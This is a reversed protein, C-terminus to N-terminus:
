EDRPRTAKTMLSDVIGRIRKVETEFRELDKQEEANMQRMEKIATETEEVKENLFEISKKVKEFDEIKLFIPIKDEM